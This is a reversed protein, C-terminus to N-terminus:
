YSFVVDYAGAYAVDNYPTATLATTLTAGVDLVSGAGANDAYIQTWPTGPTRAVAAGANWSTRWSGITFNLAANFPNVVNQINLNITAGDAAQTVTIQGEKQTTNDIVAIYAPTGTTTPVGLVGTVPDLAISATDTTDPIAIIKGFDMQKDRTLTMTNQVQVGITMNATQANADTTMGMATCTAIVAIAYRVNKLSKM